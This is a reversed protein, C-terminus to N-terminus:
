PSVQDWDEVMKRRRWLESLYDEDQQRGGHSLTRLHGRMHQEWIEQVFVIGDREFRHHVEPASVWGSHSLSLQAFVIVKPFMAYMSAM